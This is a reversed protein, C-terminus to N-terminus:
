EGSKKPSTMWGEREVLVEVAAVIVEAVTSGREAAVHLLAKAVDARFRLRYRHPRIETVSPESAM